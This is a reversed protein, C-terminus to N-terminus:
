VCAIRYRTWNFITKLNPELNSRFKNKMSVMASFGSQCLCTTSFSLLFKLLKESLSPYKTAADLYVCRMREYSIKCKSVITTYLIRPLRLERLSPSISCIRTTVFVFSMLKTMIKKCKGLLIKTQGFKFFRYLHYSTVELNLNKRFRPPMRKDAIQGCKPLWFKRKDVRRFLTTM